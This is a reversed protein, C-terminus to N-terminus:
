VRSTSIQVIQTIHCLISLTCCLYLVIIPFPNHVLPKDNSPKSGVRNPQNDYILYPIAPPSGLNISLPIVVQVSEDSASHETSVPQVLQKITKAEGRQWWSQVHRNSNKRWGWFFYGCQVDTM